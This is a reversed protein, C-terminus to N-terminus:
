EKSEVIFFFNAMTLFKIERMPLKKQKSGKGWIHIVCEQRNRKQRVNKKNLVPCSIYCTIIIRNVTRGVIPTKNSHNNVQNTKQGPHVIKIFDTKGWHSAKPTPGWGKLTHLWASFCHNEKPERQNDKEMVM